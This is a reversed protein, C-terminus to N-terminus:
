TRLIKEMAKGQALEDVLKDLYRMRKMLPDEIEAIKVGCITGTILASKANWAPAGTLFTELDAEAKILQQVAAPTYGTLWRIIQDVEAQTRNKREAKQVYCPYIRAFSMAMVKHKGPPAPKAPPAAKAAKTPKATKTTKAAAKAKSMIPIGTTESMM